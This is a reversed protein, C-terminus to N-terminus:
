RAGYVWYQDEQESTWGIKILKERDDADMNWGEMGLEVIIYSTHSHDPAGNPFSWKISDIELNAPNYLKLIEM